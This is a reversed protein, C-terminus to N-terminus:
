GRVQSRRHWARRGGTAPRQRYFGTEEGGESREGDVEVCDVQASWGRIPTARLPILETGNAFRLLVYRLTGEGARKLFHLRFICSDAVSTAGREGGCAVRADASISSRVVPSHRVM